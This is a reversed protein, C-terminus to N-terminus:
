DFTFTEEINEEVSNTLDGYRVLWAAPDRLDYLWRLEQQSDDDRKCPM